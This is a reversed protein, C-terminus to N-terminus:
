SAYSVRTFRMCVTFAYILFREPTQSIKPHGHYIQLHRGLDTFVNPSLISTNSTGLYSYLITSLVDQSVGRRCKRLWWTHLCIGLIIQCLDKRIRSAQTSFTGPMNTKLRPKKVLSMTVEPSNRCLFRYILFRAYTREFPILMPKMFRFRVDCGFSWRVRIPRDCFPWNAEPPTVSEQM